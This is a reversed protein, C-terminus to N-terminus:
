PGHVFIALCVTLIHVERALFGRCEPARPWSILVSSFGIHDSCAKVEAPQEHLRPGKVM